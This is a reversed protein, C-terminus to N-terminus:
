SEVDVLVRFELIARTTVGDNEDLMRVSRCHTGAHSVGILTLPKEHLAVRVTEAIQKAEVQGVARSWVEVPAFIEVVDLGQGGDDLQEWNGISIYPFAVNQPARDYVRNSVAPVASRLALIMAAQLALSPSPM